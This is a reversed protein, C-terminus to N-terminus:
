VTELAAKDTAFDGAVFASTDNDKILTLGRWEALITRMNKTFDDGDLGIDIRTGTREVLVSRSFDGILYDGTPVLTTELIPIGDMNLTSGIVSLREVYRKDTSTIKELKLKTVDTPHMLIYNPEADMEQAVKIQNAAVVLVDVENANDVAAAFTGASFASAQTVIGNHNQGVNNGDYAQKEVVKMLERMLENNIESEIWEIDDLMETSVKIFATSKKVSESNVVIDFDVQNKTAGEATQGAAGEKNAQNVWEVVNSSTSRKAMIDLLRIRRSPITSLGEIRDAQPVDGGSVNGAITMSGVAKNVTFEFSAEKAESRGGEKLKKLSDINKELYSRISGGEITSEKEKESLKKIALGQEKLADNLSEMQKVRDANLKDSAEQIQEKTADVDKKLEKFAEVNLANLEKYLGAKEEANMENFKETSIEKEALLIEITKM